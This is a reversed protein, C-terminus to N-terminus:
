KPSQCLACQEENHTGYEECDYIHSVAFANYAFCVTAREVVEKDENKRRHLPNSQVLPESPKPTSRVASAISHSGAVFKAEQYM